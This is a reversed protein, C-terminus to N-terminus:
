RKLGRKERENDDADVMQLGDCSKGGCMVGQVDCSQRTVAIRGDGRVGVHAGMVCRCGVHLAYDCVWSSGLM